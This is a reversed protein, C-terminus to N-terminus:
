PMSKQEALLNSGGLSTLASSYEQKINMCLSEELISSQRKETMIKWKARRKRWESKNESYKRNETFPWSRTRHVGMEIGYEDIGRFHNECPYGKNNVWDYFPFKKDLNIMIDDRYVKAVVSAAAVSLSKTDAKSLVKHKISTPLKLNGDILIFDPIMQKKTTTKRCAAIARMMSLRISAEKGLYDFESPTVEGIGIAQAVQWVVEAHQKRYKEPIKKSDNVEFIRLDHKHIDIKPLIVCASVLPGAIDSVGSEDIGGIFDGRNYFMKDFTNDM